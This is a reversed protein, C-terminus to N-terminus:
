GLNRKWWNRIEIAVLSDVGIDSLPKTTDLDEKSLLMFSFLRTGIENTLFSISAQQSLTTPNSSAATLFAHLSDSVATSATSSNASEANHLAGLRIDTKWHSLNEPSSLPITSRVGVTLHGPNLYSGWLGATAPCHHRSRVIALHLSELLDQERLTHTSKTHAFLGPVGLTESVYGVDEVVGLTLVSAVLGLGHRYQVFADLFTNASAYNAQGWWGGMGSISSFVVFFSLPTTSFANHLTWTGQVKPELAALFNDHTMEALARDQLVMSMQIVGAIPKAAMSVVNEVDRKSGVSGAFAQVNCGMARLEHFLARDREKQGASRSLFILSTAGCSAMWVAVSRGVGGLGGVLLYSASPDLVLPPVEPTIPLDTHLNEPMEVVLKGIHNGKQMVRFADQVQSAPFITKSPIPKILGKAFLDMVKDM